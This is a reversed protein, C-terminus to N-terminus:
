AAGHHGRLRRYGVRLANGFTRIIWRLAMWGYRLTVRAIRRMARLTTRVLNLRVGFFSSTLADVIALALLLMLISGVWGLPVSGIGHM